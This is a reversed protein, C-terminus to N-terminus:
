IARLKSILSLHRMCDAISGYYAGMLRGSRSSLCWARNRDYYIRYKKM